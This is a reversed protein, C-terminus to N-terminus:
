FRVKHTWKYLFKLRSVRSAAPHLGRFEATFCSPCFQSEIPGSSFLSLIIPWRNWWRHFARSESQGAAHATPPDLRGEQESMQKLPPAEEVPPTTRSCSCSYQPLHCLPPPLDLASFTATRSTLVAPREGCTDSLLPLFRMGAHHEAQSRLM